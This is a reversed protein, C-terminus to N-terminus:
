ILDLYDKYIQKEEFMVKPKKIASNKILVYLSTILNDITDKKPDVIKSPVIKIRIVELSAIWNAARDEKDKYIKVPIFWNCSFLRDRDVKVYQKTIPNEMAM